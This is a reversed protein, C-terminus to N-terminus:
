YATPKVPGTGATYRIPEAGKALELGTTGRFAEIRM